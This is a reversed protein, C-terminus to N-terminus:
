GCASRAVSALLSRDRDCIAAIEAEGIHRLAPLHQWQAIIGCGVLGVRMPKVKSM